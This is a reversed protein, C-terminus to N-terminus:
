WLITGGQMNACGLMLADGFDPSKDDPDVIIIKKSTKQLEYKMNNLQTILLTNNPIKIKGKEFLTRLNWYFQSKQNAYRTGERTPKRGVKIGFVPYHLEKLRDFVGKGVGIADVNIKTAKFKAIEREIKSVTVMTDPEKGWSEIHELIYDGETTEIINCVVTLDRGGEAVDIGLIRRKISYELIKTDRAKTLWAWSILADESEDPFRSEYLIVFDMPTTEKNKMEMIHAVTTRGEKVGQRWDVHIHYWDPDIWHDYAKSDKDWPNTIEVLIAHEPDDGTMRAIKVSAERGILASEDKVTLDAGFGMLRYADGEASIVRYECGNKFTLRTRSAEKKLKSGQSGSRDFDALDRLLPCRLICDSIYNRIIETQAGSPALLAIRKNENFLIYLSVGISVCFTKGYRTYCNISVRTHESFAIVRM